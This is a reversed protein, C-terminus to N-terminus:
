KQSEAPMPSSAMLGSFTQKFFPKCNAEIVKLCITYYDERAQDGLKPDDFLERTIREGNWTARAFCEFLRDEVEPSVAIALVKEVIQTFLAPSNRIGELSMDAGLVDNSVSMGKVAKLIAKLLAHAQAFPAVTINLKSGSTLTIEM